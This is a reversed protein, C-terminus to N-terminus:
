KKKFFAKMQVLWTDRSCSILFILGNMFVGFSTLYVQGFFLFVPCHANQCVSFSTLSPALLHSSGGGMSRSPCFWCQSSPRAVLVFTCEISLKNIHGKPKSLGCDEWRFAPPFSLSADLIHHSLSTNLIPSLYHYSSLCNWSWWVSYFGVDCLILM